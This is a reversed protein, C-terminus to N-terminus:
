LYSVKLIGSSFLRNEAEEKVIYSVTTQFIYETHLVLGSYM